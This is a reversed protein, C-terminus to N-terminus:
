GTMESSCSFRIHSKMFLLGNKFSTKLQFWHILFINMDNIKRSFYVQFLIYNMETIKTLRSNAKPKGYDWPQSLKGIVVIIIQDTRMLANKWFRKM